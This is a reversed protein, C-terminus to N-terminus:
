EAPSGLCFWRDKLAYLQWVQCTPCMCELDGNLDGCKTKGVDKSCYVGEAEAPRPAPSQGGISGMKQKICDSSNYVPCDFCRCRSWNDQNFPVAM